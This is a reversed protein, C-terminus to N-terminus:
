CSLQVSQSAAASNWYLSLLCAAVPLVSNSSFKPLCGHFPSRTTCDLNGLNSSNRVPNCFLQFYAVFNISSACFFIFFCNLLFLYFGWPNFTPSLMHNSFLFIWDFQGEFFNSWFHYQGKLIEFSIPEPINWSSSGSPHAIWLTNLSSRRICHMLGFNLPYCSSGAGGGVIILSSSSYPTSSTLFCLFHPLLICYRTYQFPYPSSYSWHIM